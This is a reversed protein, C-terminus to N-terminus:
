HMNLRHTAIKRVMDLFEDESHKNKLYNCSSCCSVVNNTTYGKSSDKRDIGNYVYEGYSNKPHFVKSPECGCYYCNGKFLEEMQANTLSFDLGKTKANCKYSSIIRNKSAEGYAKRKGIKKMLCGCNSTGRQLNKVSVVKTNGCICKCNMFVRGNKDRSNFSVVTLNGYINGILENETDQKRCGCTKIYGANLQTTPVVIENGCDCKCLWGRVNDIYATKIATLKGFRKGKLDIAKALLIM